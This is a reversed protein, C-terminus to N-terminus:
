LGSLRYAATLYLLHKARHDLNPLKLAGLCSVGAALNFEGKRAADLQCRRSTQEIVCLLPDTGALIIKIYDYPEVGRRAIIHAIIETYLHAFDRLPHGEATEAFDILWVLAGPGVLVNELNLDGHIVSHTGELTTQLIDPLRDLPDPLDFLPMGQTYHRLLRDRTDTIRGWSGAPPIIGKWRIRLVPQGNISNGKLTLSQGDARTEVQNFSNVRVITGALFASESPATYPGIIPGSQKSDTLPEIVLHPPLLADYEQEVRFTYPTRQLWWHPGFTDFLRSILAPDPSQLLAKRLSVPSNGPEALFTYQLAAKQNNKISVPARQIRATIPPLRDKVFTEYNEFEQRISARLGVKIITQAENKGGQLVPRALFTRAGSYGSLFEDELILREHRNFLARMLADDERSLAIGNGTEITLNNNPTSELIGRNIIPSKRRWLFGTLSLICGAILGFFGTTSAQSKTLGFFSSVNIDLGRSFALVERIAGNVGTEPEWHLVLSISVRQRGTTKPSISWRWTVTEGEPLLYKQDGSPSLNFAVGDLRAIGFLLFGPTRKVAIIQSQSTHDPFETKAIYGDKDPILSIRIVDSEGYKISEPWELEVVQQEIVPQAPPPITPKQEPPVPTPPQTAAAESRTPVAAAPATAVPACGNLLIVAVIGSLVIGTFVKRNM